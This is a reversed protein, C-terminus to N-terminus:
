LGIKALSQWFAATFTFFGIDKSNPTEGGHVVGIIQWGVSGFDALVPAGSHGHSIQAMQFVGFKGDLSKVWLMYNTIRGFSWNSLTQGEFLAFTGGYVPVPDNNITTISSCYSSFGPIRVTIDKDKEDTDSWNAIPMVPLKNFLDLVRQEEPTRTPLVELIAWDDGVSNANGADLVKLRIAGVKDAKNLPSHTYSKDSNPRFYIESFPRQLFGGGTSVVHAATVLYKAGIKTANGLLVGKQTQSYIQGVSLQYGKTPAAESGKWCDLDKDAFASLGFPMFTLFISLMSIFNRGLTKM